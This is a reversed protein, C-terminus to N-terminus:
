LVMEGEGGPLGSFPGDPFPKDMIEEIPIRPDGEGEDDFDFGIAISAPDGGHVEIASLLDEALLLGESGIVGAFLEGDIYVEVGLEMDVLNITSGAVDTLVLTDDYTMNRLQRGIDFDTIVTMGGAIMVPSELPDGEEGFWVLESTAASVVFTDDGRGGTLLDFGGGGFLTDSGNGGFLQDNGFSGLLIDNGGRGFLVGDGGRVELIDNRASPTFPISELFSFFGPETILKM